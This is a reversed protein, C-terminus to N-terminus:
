FPASDTALFDVGFGDLLYTAGRVMQGDISWDNTSRNVSLDQPHKIQYPEGDLMDSVIRGFDEKGEPHLNQSEKLTVKLDTDLVRLPVRPQGEGSSTIDIYCKKISEFAYRYKGAASSRETIVHLAISYANLDSNVSINFVTM